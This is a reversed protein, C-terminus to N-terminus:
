RFEWEHVNWAVASDAANPDPGHLTGLHASVGFNFFLMIAPLQDTLIKEMEMALRQRQPVEITTSFTNWIRTYDDNVWGGRNSGSWRNEASPIAGREMFSYGNEDVGGGTTHYFAPFSARVQPDRLQAAPLLAGQVDIGAQKWAQVMVALVQENAAGTEELLQPSFREGAADVFMGDAGRTFGAERMLAETQRPDHPYKPIQRHLDVYYPVDHRLFTDSPVGAGQFVAENLAQKDTAHAVARRVRLDGLARPRQLEPRFQILSYRAQSPSLIATGGDVGGWERRLIMAHEFRISRDSSLDIERAIMNTMVLNEDAMFRIVVRPIKPKGLVHGDFGSGEIFAGPEWRELKFPGLGVYEQAWYPHNIFGDPNGATAAFDEALLHRPLAQLGTGLRGAEPYIQKWRFVLSREDPAAVEALSAMLRGGGAGLEPRSYVQWAFVYDQASFPTGDHWTLNPKLRYRTEMRGDPFVQWSDTNLQPLAEALYPLPNEKSDTYDLEANFMRTTTRISIGTSQLPKSALSVPEVRGVTRLARNQVPTVGAEDLKFGAAPACGTLLAAALAITAM